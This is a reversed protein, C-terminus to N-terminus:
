QPPQAEKLLEHVELVRAGFVGQTVAPAGQTISELFARLEIPLPPHADTFITQGDQRLVVGDWLFSSDDDCRVELTHTASRSARDIESSFQAGEYVLSASIQDCASEVGPGYLVSGSQPLGLLDLAIALHHTLLNKDIAEHFTGYKHWVAQVSRVVRGELHRKLERYVPHYLFLYGTVLTLSNHEAERVLEYAEESSQALPKEVFVHKGAAIAARALERHTDIPTAIALAAIDSSLVDSLAFSHANPLNTTVWAPDPQNDQVVYGRFDSLMALDRAVNKGWRGLGIIATKVPYTNM